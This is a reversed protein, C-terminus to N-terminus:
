RALSYKFPAFAFAAFIYSNGSTNGYGDTSRIKFGNSLSDMIVSGTFDSAEANSLNPRLYLNMVNYTNRAVDVIIWPVTGQTDKFLVFAPRFGCYVFPGDASGNGTYSGFKSYGAVEAFCYAVYTDSGYNVDSDTGLTIVSSTPSTSNLFAGQSTFKANTTNLLLAETNTFSNCWVKWDNATRSRTKIIFFAPTAGLGHGITAGATSNGTYTVV